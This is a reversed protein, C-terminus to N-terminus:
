KLSQCIRGLLASNKEGLMTQDDIFAFAARGQDHARTITEILRRLNETNSRPHLNPRGILGEGRYPMLSIHNVIFFVSGSITNLIEKIMDGTVELSPPLLELWCIEHGWRPIVLDSYPTIIVITLNKRDKPLTGELLKFIVEDREEELILFCRLRKKNFIPIESFEYCSDSSKHGLFYAELFLAFRAAFLDMQSKIAKM